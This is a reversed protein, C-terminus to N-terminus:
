DTGATIEALPAKMAVPQGPRVYVATVTGDVSATVPHEMKMAEVVVLTQGAVVHQGPEVEVAVVTGPMPSVAPGGAGGHAATSAVELRPAEALEWTGHESTTVWTTGATTTVHAEARTGDLWCALRGPGTVTAAAAIPEGDGIRVQADHASGRVAVDVDAEGCRVQWSTWAHEGVRWGTRLDFPASATSYRALWALAAVAAVTDPVDGPGAVEPGIRDILGTDLEGRRVEDRRLLEGLFDVNTTVGHIVTHDLAAALRGLAAARDSGHTIVKALMPDYYSTVVAGATIGADVRVRPDPWELAAVTGGTPLFGARPDEAYVRAEVAHGSPALDAQTFPLPTGEAVALQLAVLDVGYVAETVPHEVQLRTNMELFFFEEPADASVIFEVTGAGVYDCAKAVEVAAAGMRDRTAADLLPSPCEEIVKQHRRQLSCEREGLHVVNGHSDALVQVEIHRPTTVFRELLLDDDGFAAKAERRAATLAAPLAAAEHVVRMGKGGGGATAKVMLPYGAGEAADQLAHDDMGPRHVGPVVPVGAAEVTAKAAIKDGMTRIADPPPGIFVLGAAACADAFATNESLFGYGPHVAQAGARQAAAVVAAVDLYSAAAEAPGLGVATDAERVHLADADADSYLAVSRIGLERLTRIVRM